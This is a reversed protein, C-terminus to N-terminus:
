WFVPHFKVKGLTNIELTPSPIKIWNVAGILFKLFRNKIPLRALDIDFSLYFQRYRPFDTASLRYSADEVSWTNGFGGFLNESGHGVAINLWKPFKIHDNKLFSYLNASLWYTQANYDKFVSIHYDEGYLDEVRTKLFTSNNGNNSAIQIDPYSVPSASFKPKIRQEHWLLEQTAFFGVGLANFAMDSWSFGWDASFGDMIEITSQLGLGVGIGILIANKDKMGTWQAGCFSYYAEIWATSFHGVKDMNQWENWDNFTHFTTIESDKYWAKWLAVSFGSYIVLGTTASTYFRKHNLSDPKEFFSLRPSQSEMKFLFLFFFIGFLLNNKSIHKM